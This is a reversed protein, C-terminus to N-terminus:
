TPRQLRGAEAVQGELELRELGLERGFAQELGRALALQRGIRLRDPDDRREVAGHQM